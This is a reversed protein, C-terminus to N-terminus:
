HGFEMIKPPTGARYLRILETELESTWRSRQRLYWVDAACTEDVNLELALTKIEDLSSDNIRDMLQNLADAQHPKLRGPIEIRFISM